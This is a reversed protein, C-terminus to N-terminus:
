CVVNGRAGLGGLVRFHKHSELEEDGEVYAEFLGALVGRVTGRQKWNGRPVRLGQLLIIVCVIM